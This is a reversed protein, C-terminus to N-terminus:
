LKKIRAILPSVDIGLGEVQATIVGRRDLLTLQNSHAFTNGAQKQYKVELLMSLMRVEEANGHLLLWNEGLDMREAFEKLRAPQDRETDFSVLAFVVEEAKGPPLQKEIKKMDAIIRPCAFECHTFIMAMVPIRGQLSGLQITDNNQNHWQGGLQYVSTEPLGETTTENVQGGTAEDRRNKPEASQRCGHLLLLFFTMRILWGCTSPQYQNLRSKM